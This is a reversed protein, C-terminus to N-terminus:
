CGECRKSINNNNSNINNYYARNKDFMENLIKKAQEVQGVNTYANIVTTYIITNPQMDSDDIKRSNKNNNNSVHEIDSLVSSPASNTSPSM